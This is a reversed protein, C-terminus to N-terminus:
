IELLKAKGLKPMDEISYSADPDSNQGTESGQLAFPFLGLRGQPKQYNAHYHVLL